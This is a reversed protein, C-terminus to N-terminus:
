RQVAEVRDILEQQSHVGLKSYINKTHYRVTNPSIVRKDKIVALTRGAALLELIETERPTLGCRQALAQCREHMGFPERADASGSAQPVQLQTASLAPTMGEMVRMFNVKKAVILCFSVFALTLVFSAWFLLTGSQTILVNLLHGMLVGLEIGFWKLAVMYAALQPAMSKNRSAYYVVFLVVMLDLCAAGAHMLSNALVVVYPVFIFATTPVLILGAVVLITAVLFVADANLRRGRWVCVALIVLLPIASFGRISPMGDTATYSLALGQAVGFVLVTIYILHNAPLFSRPNTAALDLSPEQERLRSIAGSALPYAFVMALVLLCAHLEPLFVLNAPALAQLSYAGAFATVACLSADKVNLQALATYALILMWSEAVSELFLGAVMVAGNGMLAGVRCCLAYLAILGLVVAAIKRCDFLRPKSSLLVFLMLMVVVGLVTASDLAWELERPFAPYVSMNLVFFAVLECLLAALCQLFGTRTTHETPNAQMSAIIAM